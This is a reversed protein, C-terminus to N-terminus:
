KLNYYQAMINIRKNLYKWSKDSLALEITNRQCIAYTQKKLVEKGEPVVLHALSMQTDGTGSKFDDM